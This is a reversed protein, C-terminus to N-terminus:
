CIKSGQLHKLDAIPTKKKKRMQKQKQKQKQKNNNNSAATPPM